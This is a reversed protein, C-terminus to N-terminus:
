FILNASILPFSHLEPTSMSLTKKDQLKSDQVRWKSDCVRWKSDRVHSKNYRTRELYYSTRALYLDCKRSLLYSVTASQSLHNFSTFM